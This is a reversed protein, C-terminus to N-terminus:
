KKPLTYVNIAATEERIRDKHNLNTHSYDYAPVTGTPTDGGGVYKAKAM